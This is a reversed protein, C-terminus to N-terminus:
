PAFVSSAFQFSRDVLIRLECNAHGNIPCAFGQENTKTLVSLTLAMAGSVDSRHYATFLIEFALAFHNEAASIVFILTAFTIIRDCVATTVM